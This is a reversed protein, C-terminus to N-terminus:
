SATDYASRYPCARSGAQHQGSGLSVGAMGGSAPNAVNHLDAGYSQAFAADAAVLCFLVGSLLATLKWAM